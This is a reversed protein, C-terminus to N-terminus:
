IRSYQCAFIFSSAIPQDVLFLAAVFFVIGFTIAIVSIQKTLRDMEKQLPSDEKEMNQTLDAIKGFETRMGIEMVIAKGNGESVNTGAFILNPTESRTLDDKLVADKIKRVPNSEGTLTSQDVQLDSCEILRADASIKDGEELLIIDGIVLDEALIKQEEASRIVRVYSPLMNRLADTAQSARHEQWFSFVGNIVNVLWIAIALEPMGAFFAVVGGVWLLIAMLHTFNSLFIILSSKKKKEDIVNKGQKKQYEEAQEQTLGKNSTGLVDYVDDAPLKCINKKVNVIIEKNNM